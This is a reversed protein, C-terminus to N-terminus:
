LHLNWRVLQVFSMQGEQYAGPM